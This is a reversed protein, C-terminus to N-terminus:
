LRMTCSEVGPPDKQLISADQTPGGRLGGLRGTSRPISAPYRFSVRVISASMRMHFDIECVFNVRHQGRRRLSPLVASTRLLRSTAFRLGQDRQAVICPSVKMDISPWQVLGLGPSFPGQLLDRLHLCFHGFLKSHRQTSPAPPNPKDRRLPHCHRCTAMLHLDEVRSGALHDAGEILGARGVDVCHDGACLRRVLLHPAPGRRLDPCSHERGPGIRDGRVTLFQGIDLDGVHAVQAALCEGVDVVAGPHKAVVGPDGVLDFAAGERLQRVPQGVPEVLGEADHCADARVVPVRVEDGELRARREDGPVADHDLCGLDGRQQVVPHDLEGQFGAKGGADDVNHGAASLLDAGQEGFM